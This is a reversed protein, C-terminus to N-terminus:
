PLENQKWSAVMLAPLRPMIYGLAYASPFCPISPRAGSARCKASEFIM